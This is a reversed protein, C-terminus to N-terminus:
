VSNRSRKWATASQKEASMGTGSIMRFLGKGSRIYM